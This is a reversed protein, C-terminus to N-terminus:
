IRGSFRFVKFLSSVEAIFLTQYGSSKQGSGSTGTRSDELVRLSTTYDRLHCILSPTQREDFAVTLSTSSDYSDAFWRLHAKLNKLNVFIWGNDDAPIEYYRNTSTSSGTDVKSVMADGHNLMLKAALRHSSVAKLWWSMLRRVDAHDGNSRCNQYRAARNITLWFIGPWRQEIKIRGSCCLDNDPIIASRFLVDFIKPESIFKM